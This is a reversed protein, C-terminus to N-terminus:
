VKDGGAERKFVVTGKSDLRASGLVCGRSGSSEAQHSSSGGITLGAMTSAVANAELQEENWQLPDISETSLTRAHAVKKGLSRESQEAEAGADQSDHADLTWTFYSFGMDDVTQWAGVKVGQYDIRTQQWHERVTTILEGDHGYFQLYHGNNTVDVYTPNGTLTSSAKPSSHSVFTRDEDEPPSEYQPHSSAYETPALPRAQKATSPYYKSGCGCPVDCLRWGKGENHVLAQCVHFRKKCKTCKSSSARTHVNMLHGCFKCFGDEGSNTSM